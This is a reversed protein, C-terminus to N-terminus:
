RILDLGALNRLELEIKQGDLSVPCLFTLPFLISRSLHETTAVDNDVALQCEFLLAALHVTAHLHCVSALAVITDAEALAALLREAALM